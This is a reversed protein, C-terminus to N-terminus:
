RWHFGVERWVLGGAFGVRLGKKREERAKEKDAKRKKAALKKSITTGEGPRKEKMEERMRMKQEKFRCNATKKERRQTAVRRNFSDEDDDEREESEESEGMQEMGEEEDGDGEGDESNDDTEYRREMENDLEADKNEVEQVDNEIGDASHGDRHEEETKGHGDERKSEDKEEEREAGSRNECERAYHGKEGCKFCKFDPCDRFIHGPQICLRCVRIQRDHIVRFYESGRLTEFRTSYPLSRVQENFRVKLFRTGDAIDTGPWKRRKITSLPKVGWEELKAIIKSDELYVPLNIFSVVMDTNVIDRAFVMAGKVKLGDMLKQKAEDLRMTIEYIRAGRVRCGTVEGCEKKVERLIDMMSIEGTEEVEVEVTLERNYKRREEGQIEGNRQHEGDKRKNIRQGSENDTNKREDHVNQGDTERCGEERENMKEMIRRTTRQQESNTAMVDM